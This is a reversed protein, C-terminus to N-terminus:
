DLEVPGWKLADLQERVQVGGHDDLDVGNRVALAAAVGAAQGLAMATATVRTSSSALPTASHCRGAVLLNDVQKPRITGYPIDYPKPQFKQLKNYGGSTM